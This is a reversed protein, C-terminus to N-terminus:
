MSMTKLLQLLVKRYGNALKYSHLKLGNGLEDVGIKNYKMPIKTTFDPTVHALENIQKREITISDPKTVNPTSRFMSPHCIGVKMVM